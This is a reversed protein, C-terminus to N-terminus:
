SLLYSNEKNKQRDYSYQEKYIADHQERIKSM